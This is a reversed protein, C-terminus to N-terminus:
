VPGLGDGEAGLQEEGGLVIRVSGSRRRTGGFAM